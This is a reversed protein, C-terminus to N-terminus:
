LWYIIMKSDALEQVKFHIWANYASVKNHVKTLRVGNQFIMDLFYRETQDFREALEKARVQISQLVEDVATRM